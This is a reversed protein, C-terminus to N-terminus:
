YCCGYGHHKKENDGAELEFRNDVESTHPSGNKFMKLSDERLQKLLKEVGENTKASTWFHTASIKMSQLFAEEKDVSVGDGGIPLDIKNRVLILKAAPEDYKISDVISSLRRLSSENVASYVLLVFRSRRYYSKTVDAYRELDATDWFEM